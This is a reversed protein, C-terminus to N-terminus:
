PQRPKKPVRNVANVVDGRKANLELEYLNKEAPTQETSEAQKQKYLAVAQEGFTEAAEYKSMNGKTLPHVGTDKSFEMAKITSANRSIHGLEVMEMSDSTHFSAKDIDPKATGRYQFTDVAAQSGSFIGRWIGAPVNVISLLGAGVIGIPIVGPIVKFLWPWRSTKDAFIEASRRVSAAIGAGVGLVPALVLRDVVEPVAGRAFSGGGADSAATERLSDIEIGRFSTLVSGFYGRGSALHYATRCFGYVFNLPMFGVAVLLSFFKRPWPDKAANAIRAAMELFGGTIAPLAMIGAIGWGIPNSALVASGAVGSLIPALPPIIAGIASLIAPIAITGVWTGVTSLGLVSGAGIIASGFGTAAAVTTGVIGLLATIPLINDLFRMLPHKSRYLSKFPDVFVDDLWQVINM